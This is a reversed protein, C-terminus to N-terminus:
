QAMLRAILTVLRARSPQGPAEWPEDPEPIPEHFLVGDDRGLYRRAIYEYDGLNEDILRRRLRPRMLDAPAEDAGAVLLRQTLMERTASDLEARQLLDLVHLTEAGLSANVREPSRAAELALEEQGIARLFDAAVGGPNQAQEFPRVIVRDASFVAAWRDVLARYRGPRNRRSRCFALYAQIGSEWPPEAVMKVAQNYFSLWWHDHRRFYVVVRVDFEALFDRVVAPDGGLVFDESSPVVNSTPHQSLERLLGDRLAALELQDPVRRGHAFGLAQSLGYHADGRRGALPYLVGAVALKGANATLWRQIASSGTKNMGIHLFLRSQAERGDQAYIM